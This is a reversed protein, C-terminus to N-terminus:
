SLERIRQEVLARKQIARNLEAEDSAMQDSVEAKQANVSRRRKSEFGLFSWGQKGADLEARRAKLDRLAAEKAEIDTIDLRAASRLTLEAASIMSTLDPAKARQRQYYIDGEAAASECDSCYNSM